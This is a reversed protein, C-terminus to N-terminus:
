IHGKEMGWDIWDQTMKEIDGLHEPKIPNEKALIILAEFFIYKGNRMNELIIPIIQPGLKLIEKFTPHKLKDNTVSYHATAEFWMSYYHEYKHKLREESRFSPIFFHEETDRLNQRITKAELSLGSVCQFNYYNDDCEIDHCPMVAIPSM